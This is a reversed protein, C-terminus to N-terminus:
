VAVEREWDGAAFEGVGRRRAEHVVLPDPGFQGAARQPVVQRVLRRRREEKLALPRQPRNHLQTRRIRPKIGALDIHLRHRIKPAIPRRHHLARHPIHHRRLPQRQRLKAQPSPRPLPLAEPPPTSSPYSLFPFPFPFPFPFLILSFPSQPPTEFAHPVKCQVHTDDFSAITPTNSTSPHAQSYAKCSIAGLICMTLAIFILMTFPAYRKDM